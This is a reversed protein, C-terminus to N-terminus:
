KKGPTPVAEPASVPAPVLEPVPAPSPKVAPVPEPTLSPAPAPGPHGHRGPRKDREHLPRPAREMKGRRPPRVEHSKGPPTPRCQANWKAFQIPTLIERMREVSREHLRRMREPANEDPRIGRRRDERDKVVQKAEKLCISYVRNYQQKSLSLREAMRNTRKSAIEQATLGEECPATGAACEPFRCEAHRGRPPQAQITGVSFVIAMLAAILFKAKM